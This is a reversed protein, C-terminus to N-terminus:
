NPKTLDCGSELGVELEIDIHTNTDFMEETGTMANASGVPRIQCSPSHLQTQEM